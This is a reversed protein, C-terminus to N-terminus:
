SISILFLFLKFTSNLNINSVLSKLDSIIFRNIQQIIENKIATLDKLLIKMEYIREFRFREIWICDLDIVHGFQTIHKVYKQLIFNCM